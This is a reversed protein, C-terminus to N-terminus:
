HRLLQVRSPQHTKLLALVDAAMASYTHPAAVPLHGHNRLDLACVPRVDDHALAKCLSHWNRKSNRVRTLMFILTQSAPVCLFGYLVVLAGDTKNGGPAAYADYALEFLTV